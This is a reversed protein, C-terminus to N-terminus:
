WGKERGRLRPDLLDRIGDGLLSFGLVLTTIVAGPAIALWPALSLLPYGMRLMSGWSPTPPRVGLGLFSLAAETLVAFAISLCAQIVIVSVINPLIHRLMIHIEHGGIVRAAQVFEMERVWLVEGRALRAFRPMAVIGIAVIANALSSGLAAMLAMALILSPLAYFADMFRMCVEDVWGGHYGALLGIGVGAVTALTVSLIGVMMSVRTGMILRSLIDRGLDDTGLLHQISPPELARPVNQDMPDYPAIWPALLGVVAFFAVILGGLLLQPNRVLLRYLGHTRRERGQQRSLAVQTADTVM